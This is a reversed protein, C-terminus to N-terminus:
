KNVNFNILGVPNLIDLSIAKNADKIAERMQGLDIYLLHFTLINKWLREKCKMALPLSSLLHM